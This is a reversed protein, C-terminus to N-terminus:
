SWAARRPLEQCLIQTSVPIHEQATSVIDFALFGRLQIQIGRCTIRLCAASTRAKSSPSSQSACGACSIATCFSTM